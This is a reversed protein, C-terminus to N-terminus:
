DPSTLDNLTIGLAKCLSQATDIRPIRKGKEILEVAQRSIGASEALKQVSLGKEKRLLALREAITEM